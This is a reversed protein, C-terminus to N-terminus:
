HRERRVAGAEAAGTGGAGPEDAPSPPRDRSSGARPSRAVAGPRFSCLPWPSQAPPARALAAPWAHAGTAAGDKSRSMTQRIDMNEKDLHIKCYRVDGLWGESFKGGKWERLLEEPWPRPGLLKRLVPERKSMKAPLVGTPGNEGLVARCPCFGKLCLNGRASHIQGGAGPTAM